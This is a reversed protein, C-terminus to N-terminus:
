ARKSLTEGREKLEKTRATVHEKITSIPIVKSDIRLKFLAIHDGALYVMCGNVVPDLSDHFAPVFGASSLKEPQCVVFRHESVADVIEQPTLHDFQYIIANKFM